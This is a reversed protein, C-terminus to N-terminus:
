MLDHLQARVSETFEAMQMQVHSSLTKNQSQENVVVTINAFDLKGNAKCKRLIDNGHHTSYGLHTLLLSFEMDSLVQDENRDYAVM